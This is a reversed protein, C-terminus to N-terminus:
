PAVKRGPLYNRMGRPLLGNPRFLLVLVVLSAFLLFRYEQIMQLKEPLLIVIVSAVALGWPNGLGGLLVISVLILSESFAFNAPAIFGLMMGYIAGAMGILFNGFTFGFIKWRQIGIGYCAAATEDLRVADMSLGIWSRELRRVLAFALALVTLTLLLYNMYFSTNSSSSFAIPVNFNWGFLSMPGSALGQPGGLIDNVELFSEFLIAFAITVVASYHGYTRLVPMILLCGILASLMGGIPLSLLPPIASHITLVAATYAGVGIFSAGSLNILGVYGFQVNLGLGALMYVMVTTIMLLTFHDERFIYALVLVGAIVMAYLTKEYQDFAVRIRDLAGLRSAIITGVVALLLLSGVVYENETKLFWAAFGILLVGSILGMVLSIVVYSKDPSRVMSEQSVNNM